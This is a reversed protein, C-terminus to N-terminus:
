LIWHTPGGAECLCVRTGSTPLLMNVGDEACIIHAAPLTPRQQAGLERGGEHRCVCCGPYSTVPVQEQLLPWPREQVLWM